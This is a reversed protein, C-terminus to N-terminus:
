KRKPAPKKWSEKYHQREENKKEDEEQLVSRKDELFKAKRELFEELHRGELSYVNAGGRVARLEVSCIVSSARINEFLPIEPNYLVDDDVDEGSLRQFFM